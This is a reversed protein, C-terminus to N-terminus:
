TLKVTFRGHSNDMWWPIDNHSEKQPKICKLIYEVMKQFNEQLKPIDWEGDKVFCMVGVEEQLSNEGEIYYLAGKKIWNDYWFRSNEKQKGGFTISWKKESLM